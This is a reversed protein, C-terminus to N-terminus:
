RVRVLPKVQQVPGNQLRVYYAGANFATLDVATRYTGAALHGEVLRSIVQGNPAMLQVLTHGGETTYEVTSTGSTPNPWASVLNLGAKRNLERITPEQNGCAAAQVLPLSQYNRLLVTDVDSQDLCLWQNLVSGYVSRYDYQMPVNDDWGPNAPLEPSTGLIGPKVHKGFLFLPAGAGHDTGRSGNSIIRRGFESFTLGLVRDEIGLFKLDNQFAKVADGLEQLLSAHEGVTTDQLVAQSDHTDYGYQTVMFVKTKLGGAILRAVIKLNAALRNDEPYPAQQSVRLAAAKVQANYLKTQESVIRIYELEAGARTKPAPETVSDLLNYFETPNSITMGMNMNPGMFALPLQGGVQIALPDPMTSNPYGTPFNPHELNLYRGLWGTLLFQETDAGTMWIDMSRFHSFNQDPYGVGQVITLKGDNYLDRFGTLAPHLRVATQGDLALGKSDPILLPGRAAALTNYKDLNLVTNLGDNGGNLQILVLVHDTPADDGLQKFPSALADVRLGVLLTPVAVGLTTNRVFERRKM